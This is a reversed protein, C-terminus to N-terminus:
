GDTTHYYQVNLMEKVLTVFFARYGCTPLAGFLTVENTSEVGGVWVVKGWFEGSSPLYNTFDIPIYCFSAPNYVERVHLGHNTLIHVIYLDGAPRFPLWELCM